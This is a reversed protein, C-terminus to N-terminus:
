SRLLESQPVDKLCFLNRVASALPNRCREAQYFCSLMTPLLSGAPGWRTQPLHVQPTFREAISNQMPVGTCLKCIEGPAHAIITRTHSTITLHHVSAGAM